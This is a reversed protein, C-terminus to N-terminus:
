GSLVDLMQRLSRKFDASFDFRPSRRLADPPESLAVQALIVPKRQTRFYQWAASVPEDTATSQSLVLVMRSCEKLAPHVGGGWATRDDPDHLWVAFGSRELDSAIQQAAEEDNNSYNIYVTDRALRPRHRKGDDEGILVASPREDERHLDSMGMRFVTGGCTPCEGRTAPQGKRTWVALPNEMEISERCRMCYGEIPELPEDDYYDMM